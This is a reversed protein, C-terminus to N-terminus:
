EPQALAKVMRHVASQPALPISRSTAEITMRRREYIRRAGHNDIAVDLVIRKSGTAQVLREAHDLLMSGIGVGRRTPDVAVAQLYWDGDSLRDMFELVPAALVGTAWLRLRSIGAANELACDTSIAHQSSTYGSVMGVVEGDSEAFSVHEYSLDHGSSLFAEAVIAASRPGLMWRFLGDGALDLYRAFSEGDQPRPRAARISVNPSQM